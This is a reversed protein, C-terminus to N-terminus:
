TYKPLLKQYTPVAAMQFMRSKVLSPFVLIQALLLSELITFCTSYSTRFFLDLPATHERGKQWLGPCLWLQLAETSRSRHLASLFPVMGKCPFEADVRNEWSQLSLYKGRKILSLYFKRWVLHCASVSTCLRSRGKPGLSFSMFSLSYKRHPEDARHHSLLPHIESLVM